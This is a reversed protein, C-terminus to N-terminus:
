HAEGNSDRYAELVLENLLGKAEDNLLSATEYWQGDKGQRRPLGLFLGNKGEVVRFGKILLAGCVSVDCFAKTKGEGSLKHIGVVEFELQGVM